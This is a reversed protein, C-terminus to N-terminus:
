MLETEEDDEQANMKDSWYDGDEISTLPINKQILSVALQPEMKLIIVDGFSHVVEFQDQVEALMCMLEFSYYTFDAWQKFDHEFANFEDGQPSTIYLSFLNNM